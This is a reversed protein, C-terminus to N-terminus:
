KEKTASPPEHYPQRRPGALGPGSRPMLAAGHLPDPRGKAHARLLDWKSPVGRHAHQRMHELEESHVTGFEQLHEEVVSDLECDDPAWQHPWGTHCAGDREGLFKETEPTRFDSSREKPM